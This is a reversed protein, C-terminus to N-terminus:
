LPRMIPAADVAPLARWGQGDYCELPAFGRKYDMTASGPVWYGLYVHERAEAKAAAIQRLVAYTGLSRRPEDPDFFTYVASLASPLEDVVAVMVLRGGARFCWFGTVGWSSGLFERFAKADDADMGGFPHRAVLYRRYLAFHEEGLVTERTLTLDANRVLCRRQARNPAFAAVTVRVPICSACGHCAPRYAYDGSRRFGQAILDAYTEGSLQSHPAVFASRSLRKPLYGCPQETGLLLRLPARAPSQERKM